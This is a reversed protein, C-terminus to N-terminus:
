CGGHCRGEICRPHRGSSWRKMTETSPTSTLRRITTTTCTCTWGTSSASGHCRRGVGGNYWLRQRCESNAPCGNESYEHAMRRKKTTRRLPNFTALAAQYGVPDCMFLAESASVPVDWITVPYNDDTYENFEAHDEYKLTNTSQAQRGFDRHLSLLFCGIADAARAALEIHVGQLIVATADRGHAIVGHNRRLNYLGKVTATLGRITEELDNRGQAPDPHGPPVLPLWTITERLLKVTVGSGDCPRQRESMITKCISGILGDAM